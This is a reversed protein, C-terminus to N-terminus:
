KVIKSNINGYDEISNSFDRNLKEIHNSDIITFVISMIIVFIIGIIFLTKNIKIM